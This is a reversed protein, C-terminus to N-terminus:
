EADITCVRCVCMLWGDSDVNRGVVGGDRGLVLVMAREGWVGRGGCGRMGVEEAEAGAGQAFDILREFVCVSYQVASANNMEPHRLYYTLFTKLKEGM